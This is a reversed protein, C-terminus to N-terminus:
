LRKSSLAMKYGNIISYYGFQELSRKASSPVELGRKRLIILQQNLTKFPKSNEKNM